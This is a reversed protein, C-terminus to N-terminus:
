SSSPISIWVMRIRLKVGYKNVGMRRCTELRWDGALEGLNKEKAIKISWAQAANEM